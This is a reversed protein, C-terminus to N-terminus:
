HWRQHEKRQLAWYVEETLRDAEKEFVFTAEFIREVSGVYSKLLAKGEQTKPTDFLYNMGDENKSNKTHQEIYVRGSVQKINGKEDVKFVQIRDGIPSDYAKGKRKWHSYFTITDEKIEYSGEQTTRSSCSGSKNEFTLTLLPYKEMAKYVKLMIGKDGYEDYPEEVIKFPQGNILTYDHLSGAWIQAIIFMFVMLIKM